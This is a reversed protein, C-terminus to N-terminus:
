LGVVIFVGNFVLVLKLEFHGVALLAARFFIFLSFCWTSIEDYSPTMPRLCGRLNPYRKLLISPCCSGLLSTEVSQADGYHPANVAHSRLSILCFLRYIQTSQYGRITQSFCKWIFYGTNFKSAIFM